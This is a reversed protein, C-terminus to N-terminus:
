TPSSLETQVAVLEAQAGAVHSRGTVRICMLLYFRQTGM